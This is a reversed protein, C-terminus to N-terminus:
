STSIFSLGVARSYGLADPVGLFFGSKQHKVHFMRFGKSGRLEVARSYGLADPVGLFLGSKPHKVHFM